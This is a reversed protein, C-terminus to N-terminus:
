AAVAQVKAVEALITKGLTQAISAADGSLSVRAGYGFNSAPYGGTNAWVVAVGAKKCLGMFTQAYREDANNVLYSDTFIVLVRAGSGSILRLEADLLLAGERFAETGDLAAWPQVKDAVEHARNVLYGQNGFTATAVTGDVKTVANSLVYTLVASPEAAAGMSGSVDTLIGVTIPTEDTHHREKSRWMPVEGRAGRADFAAKQVAARPRLRGGPVVRDVKTVIRDRWTIRALAAGLVNAAAREAARPERATMQHSGKFASYGHAGREGHRKEVMKRGADARERDAAREAVVREAVIEAREDLAEGERDMAAEGAAERIAEALSGGEGSDDGESGESDEDGEPRFACGSGSGSGSDESEGEGPEGAAGKGEGPIGSPNPTGEEDEGAAERVLALWADAIGLMAAYDPTGVERDDYARAGEAVVPPLAHYEQWLARLGALIEAGLIPEILGYFRDREDASLLGADYRALTLAASISAGYPTDAPSFDRLVISLAMQTLATAASPDKRVALYEIRSEELAITVDIQAKSWGLDVLTQPVWCSWRAHAAEHTIAGYFPLAGLVFVKDNLDCRAPVLGPLCTESNVDLDCLIPSWCATGYPGGVGPGVNAVIDDRGAFRRTYDAIQAAVPLWADPTGVKDAVAGGFALHAM